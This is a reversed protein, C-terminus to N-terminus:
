KFVFTFVIKHLFDTDHSVIIITKNYKKKLMRILKILDNKDAEDMGITPEDFIIIKPNYILVSAIAIKRKESTSLENLKKNLYSEELRMMKLADKIRADIESTKYDNFILLRIPSYANM